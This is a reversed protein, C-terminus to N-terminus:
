LLIQISCSTLFLCSTTKAFIFGTSRNFAGSIFASGRHKEANVENINKDSKILVVTDVTSDLLFCDLCLRFSKDTLYFCIM